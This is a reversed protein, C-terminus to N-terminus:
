LAQPFLAMPGGGNENLLGVQAQGMANLEGSAKNVARLRMSIVNTGESFHEVEGTVILKDGPYTPKYFKVNLARLLAWHGPLHMGILQSFLASILVGHTVRKSFGNAQAFDCNMHLPSKDGSLAAFCDIMSETIEVEFSAARSVYAAEKENNNDGV